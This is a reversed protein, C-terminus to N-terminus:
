ATHQSDVLWRHGNFFNFNGNNVVCEVVSPNLYVCRFSKSTFSDSNDTGAWSAQSGCLLKSTRTVSNGNELFVISHAPQKAVSDWIELHFLLVNIATNSLKLCFTHAESNSNLNALINGPNIKTSSVVGNQNSGSSRKRTIQLNWSTVQFANVECHLIQSLCVASYGPKANIILDSGCSLPNYDKSTSISSCVAQTSCGSL